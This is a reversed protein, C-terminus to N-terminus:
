RMSRLPRTKWRRHLWLWQDPHARVFEDLRAGISRTAEAIWALGAHDPPTLVDVIEVVHQGRHDRRAFAVVIPAGCRAAITAPLTDHLAVEGLFPADVVSTHREPDQDVLLAVSGTEHLRDRISRLVGSTSAPQSFPAILSLGRRRRTSQWFADLGKSSLRKTVVALPTRAACACAALDWNGTHATAVVVGRGLAHAAEFRSWNEVRAITALDALPRGSLWLLELAGAGLSRYARRAISSDLGARSLAHLVHARRIRIVDFALFALVAGLPRLARYPLMGVLAALM